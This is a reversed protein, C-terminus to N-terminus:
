ELICELRDLLEVAKQHLELARETECDAAFVEAGKMLYEIRNLLKNVEPSLENCSDFSNKLFTDWRCQAKCQRIHYVTEFLQDYPCIMYVLTYLGDPIEALSTSTSLGFSYSNFINITEPTFDFTWKTNYGPVQIQIKPHEPTELYYSDDRLVLNNCSTCNEVRIDLNLTGISM